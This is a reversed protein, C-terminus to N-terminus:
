CVGLFAPGLHCLTFTGPVLKLPKPSTADFPIELTSLDGRIAPTQEERLDLSSESNQRLESGTEGIVAVGIQDIVGQFFQDGLANIPQRQPVFVQVIVIVQAAIRQQRCQHPLPIRQTLM